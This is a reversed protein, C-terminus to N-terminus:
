LYFWMLFSVFYRSLLSLIQNRDSRVMQVYPLLKAVISDTVKEVADLAPVIAAAYFSFIVRLQSCKGDQVSGSYAQSCVLVVSVLTRSFLVGDVVRRRSLVRRVKVSRTVLTCVFDM